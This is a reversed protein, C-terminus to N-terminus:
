KIEGTSSSPEVTHTKIYLERSEYAETTTKELQQILTLCDYIIQLDPKYTVTGDTTERPTLNTLNNLVMYLSSKILNLQNFSILINFNCILDKGLEMEDDTISINILCSDKIIM